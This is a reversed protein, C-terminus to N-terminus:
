PSPWLPTACGVWGHNRTGYVVEQPVDQLIRVMERQLVLWEETRAAALM